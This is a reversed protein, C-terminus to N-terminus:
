RNYIAPLLLPPEYPNIMVILPQSGQPAFGGDGNYFAVMDHRGLSLNSLALTASDGVLPVVGLVEGKEMFTVTGTPNGEPALVIARLTVIQNSFAPNPNADIAVGLQALTVNQVVVASTSSTFNGNAGYGATINHTGPRLTQIALTAQGDELPVVGITENGDKFTVFGTPTAAAVEALGAAKLAAENVEVTATLYITQAFHSNSTSSQLSISTTAQSITLNVVASTSELHTSSGAYIATLSHEGAALDDVVLTAKGASLNAEGLKVAGDWFTVKGTPTGTGSVTAQLTVADGYSAATPNASLSTTTAHRVVNLNVIASTSASHQTSGSYHATILHAGEALDSSSFTAVGNVLAVTGLATTGDMFVVSGTPTGNPSSVTAAFNVNQGNTVPNPTVNLAVSSAYQV